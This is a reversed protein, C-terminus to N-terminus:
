LWHPFRKASFGNLSLQSVPRLLALRHLARQKRSAVTASATAPVAAALLFLVVFSVVRRMFSRFFVTGPLNLVSRVRADGPRNSTRPCFSHFHSPVTLIQEVRSEAPTSLRAHSVGRVSLRESIDSVGEQERAPGTRASGASCCAEGAQSSGAAGCTRRPCHRSTSRVGRCRM